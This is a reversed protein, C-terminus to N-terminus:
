SKFLLFTIVFPVASIVVGLLSVAIGAGTRRRAALFVGLAILAVGLVVLGIAVPNM